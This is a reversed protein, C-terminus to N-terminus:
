KGNFRWASAFKELKSGLTNFFLGLGAILFTAALVEAINFSQQADMMYIGIGTGSGILYEVGFSAMWAYLLAVKFGSFFDPAIQPIILKQITKTKSFHFIQTVEKLQTPVDHISKSITTFIPFFTSIVIFVIKSFDGLGFWATLLPLWAFVTILRFTDLTPTFLADLTKNTGTLIGLLIGFATGISLGIVTRILTQWLCQYLYLDSFYQKFVLYPSVLLNPSIWHFSTIVSWVILLLTPFLIFLFSFPQKIAQNATTLALRPYNVIKKEIIQILADLCIGVLAILIITLFVIDLLFLQRGYTMLYGLGESSAILEVAILTSWASATAIRLGIFFQPLLSPIVLKQIIHRKSLQLSQAVELLKPSITQVGNYTHIAIPIFSAKFILFIKLAEGLGLWIILIPLLALSPLISLGFFTVYFFAYFRKFYGFLLGFIFGLLAGLGIGVVVRVVSIEINSTLNEEKLLYLFVDWVEYPTPLIQMPMWHYLSAFYWLIFISIPLLCSFVKRKIDLFFQAM